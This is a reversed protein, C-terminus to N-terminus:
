TLQEGNRTGMARNAAAWAASASAEHNIRESVAAIQYGVGAATALNFTAIGLQARM